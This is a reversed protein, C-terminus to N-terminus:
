KHTNVPFCIRCRMVGHECEVATSAHAAKDRAKREDRAARKCDPHFYARDLREATAKALREEEKTAKQKDREAKAAEKVAREALKRQELKDKHPAEAPLHKERVAQAKMLEKLQEM